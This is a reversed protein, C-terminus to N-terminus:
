NMIKDLVKKIKETMENEVRIVRTYIEEKNEIIEKMRNNLSEKDYMDIMLMDLGCDIFTSSIKLHKETDILAIPLSGYKYGLLLSHLRNSIHFGANCYIDKVDALKLRDDVFECSYKYKYVNYLEETIRRDEEVQFVFYVKVGATSCKQIEEIIEGCVPIIKKAYGEEYAELTSGRMNVVIDLCSNMKRSHNKLYLWSMDPCFEVNGIKMKKCRELSQTDRVFNHTTVYSRIRESYGMGKTINGISRGIRVTKIGLVNYVVTLASSLLNRIVRKKGGGHVDGLGSFVYVKDNSKKNKIACKVVYGAFSAEGDSIMKEEPLIGLENIFEEPIKSSCNACVQGYERLIEILARNILADGSNSFKTKTQYFIYNM